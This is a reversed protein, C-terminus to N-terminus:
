LRLNLLPFWFIYSSLTCLIAPILFRACHLSSACCTCPPCFSIPSLLVFDADLATSGSTPKTFLYQSITDFSLLEVHSLHNSTAFNLAWTM